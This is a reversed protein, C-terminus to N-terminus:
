KNQHKKYQIVTVAALVLEDIDIDTIELGLENLKHAFKLAYKEQDSLNEYCMDKKIDAIGLLYDASVNFYEALYKLLKSDPLLIDKEYKSITSRDISFHESLDKQTLKRNKRLTRLRNGLTTM